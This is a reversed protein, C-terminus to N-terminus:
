CGLDSEVYTDPYKPVLMLSRATVLADIVQDIQTIDVPVSRGLCDAITLMDDEVFVAYEFRKDDVFFGTDEELIGEYDFMESCYVAKTM